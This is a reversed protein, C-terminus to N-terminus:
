NNSKEKRQKDRNLNICLTELAIVYSVIPLWIGVANFYFSLVSAAVAFLPAPGLRFVTACCFISVIGAIVGVESFFLYILWFSTVTAGMGVIGSILQLFPSQDQASLGGFSSREILTHAEPDFFFSFHMQRATNCNPCTWSIAGENCSTCFIGPLTNSTALVRTTEGCFPCERDFPEVHKCEPCRFEATGETFGSNGPHWWKNDVPVNIWNAHNM